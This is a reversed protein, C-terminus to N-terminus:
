TATIPTAPSPPPASTTPAAPRSPPVVALDAAQRSPIAAVDAPRERVAAALGRSLGGVAGPSRLRDDMGLYDGAVQAV